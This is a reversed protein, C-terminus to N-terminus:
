ENEEFHEAFLHIRLLSRETGGDGLCRSFRILSRSGTLHTLPKELIEGHIFYSHPDRMSSIKFNYYRRWLNPSITGGDILM